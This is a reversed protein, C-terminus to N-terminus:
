SGDLAVSSPVVPSGALGLLIDTLGDWPNNLSLGKISCDIDSCQALLDNLQGTSLRGLALKVLKLRQPFVGHYRAITDLAKGKALEQKLGTLTRIERGFAWLVVIPETGEGKLGNLSAMAARADGSLTKDILGFVDYRASDMVAQAMTQATIVGDECLLKLKEIEQIAALLNGEVKNTLIEIAESDARLGAQNLRQEVWRPLQQEKIPWVTVVVGTAELTKFWATNQTPREIKDSILLVVTDENTNNCYAQLAKVGADTIKPSHLRIEILKKDAFLSLSNASEVMQSWNFQANSHHTERESFGQEKLHRRLQDCAEQVILPEDGSVCYIPAIGSALHKGLQEPNIKAM